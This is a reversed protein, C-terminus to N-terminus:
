LKWWNEMYNQVFLVWSDVDDYLQYNPKLMIKVDPAIGIHDIPYEPLRRSRSTPFSLKGYGSPLELSYASSYDLVGATPEAGFLMCKTSNKAYLLFHEGSSAVGGNIIIGVRKPYAYMTNYKIWRDPTRIYFDGKVKIMDEIQRKLQEEYGKKVNGTALAKEYEAINGESALEEVGKTYFPHTYIFPLISQFALDTGGGNGRLDIILNPTNTLRDYFHNFISDIFRQRYESFSPIRIFLTSDNLSSFTFRVNNGNPYRMRYGKSIDHKLPTDPYLKYMYLEGHLEIINKDISAEGSYPSRGEARTHKKFSYHDGNAQKSFEFAM